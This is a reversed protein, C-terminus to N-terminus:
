RKKEKVLGSDDLIMISRKENREKVIAGVCSKLVCLFELIIEYLNKARTARKAVM